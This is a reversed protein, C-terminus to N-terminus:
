QPERQQPRVGGSSLLRLLWELVAGVTWQCRAFQIRSCRRATVVANRERESRNRVHQVYAANSCGRRHFITDYIQSPATQFLTGHWRWAGKRLTLRSTPLPYVLSLSSLSPTVPLVCTAIFPLLLVRESFFTVKSNRAPKRRSVRLAIRPLSIFLLSRRALMDEAINTYAATRLSIVPVVFLSSGYLSFRVM